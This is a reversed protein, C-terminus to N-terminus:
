DKLGRKLHTLVEGAAALFGAAQAVAQAPTSQEGTKLAKHLMKSTAEWM